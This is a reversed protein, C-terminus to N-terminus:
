TFIYCTFTGRVNCTFTKGESACKGGVGYPTKQQLSFPAKAGLGATYPKGSHYMDSTVQAM